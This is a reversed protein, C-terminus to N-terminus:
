GGKTPSSYKALIQETVAKHLRRSMEIVTKNVTKGDKNTFSSSPLGVWPQQGDRQIVRFGRVTLDTDGFAFTADAFAKLAGQEFRHLDIEIRTDPM